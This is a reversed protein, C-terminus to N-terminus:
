NQRELLYDIVAKAREEFPLKVADFYRYSFEQAQKAFGLSKEIEAPANKIVYERIAKESGQCHGYIWDKYKMEYEIIVEAYSIDNYGIFAAKIDLNKLKLNSVGEPTVAVGEILIDSQNLNEHSNIIGTTCLWANFDEEGLWRNYNKPKENGGFNLQIEGNKIKGRITDTSFWVLNKQSKIKELIKTKGVRSAGGVLYLTHKANNMSKQGQTDKELIM